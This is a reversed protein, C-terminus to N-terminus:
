LSAVSKCYTIYKIKMCESVPLNYHARNYMKHGMQTFIKFSSDELIQQNIALKTFIPVTVAMIKSIQTCLNIYM